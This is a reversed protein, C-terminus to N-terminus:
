KEGENPPDPLPMWHTPTWEGDEAYSGEVMLSWYKGLDCWEVTAMEGDAYGLIVTGDRPATEILQWEAM